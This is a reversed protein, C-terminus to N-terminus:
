SQGLGRDSACAYVYSQLGGTAITGQTNRVMINSTTPFQSSVSDFLRLKVKDGGARGGPGCVRACVRM